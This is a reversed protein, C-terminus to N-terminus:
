WLWRGGGWRVELSMTGGLGEWGGEIDGASKRGGQWEWSGLDPVCAVGVATRERGEERM